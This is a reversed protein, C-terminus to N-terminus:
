SLICPGELVQLSLLSSPSSHNAPWIGGTVVRLGVLKLVVVKYFHAATGFRARVQPEHVKTESLELSSLLLFLFFVLRLALIDRSPGSIDLEACKVNAPKLCVREVTTPEFWGCVSPMRSGERCGFVSVWWGCEVDLSGESIVSSMLPVVFVLAGVPPRSPRLARPGQQAFPHRDTTAGREAAPPQQNGKVM